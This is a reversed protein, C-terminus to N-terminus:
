KELTIVLNVEHTQQNTTASIKEKVGVLSRRLVPDQQQARLIFSSAYSEDFVDGPMMQWNRMLMGRLDDSVNDFKVFSLHYVPGPEVGVTYNAIGSSQDFSPQPIVRCDLYGKAKYRAAIMSWLARLRIGDVPAEPHDALIKDAEAQTVPSGDPLHVSGIKYIRGEQINVTFPVRIADSSQVANGAQAAHVTVAAYGQDEYATEFVREVSEESNAADFQMGTANKALTQATQAMLLSTGQLHVPGVLVPISTISFGIATVKNHQKPDAVPTAIVPVKIGQASLMAELQARVDETLAGDSPVRGHFLPVKEHLRAELDKGPTLPLNELRISLLNTSPTLQFILDQGDFKFSLTDFVGSDLLQKSHDNMEAYSLVMGKKLGAAALLEQDSYEPAGKFQISKPLFKQGMAPLTVCVLIGCVIRAAKLPSM